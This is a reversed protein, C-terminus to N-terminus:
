DKLIKGDKIEIFPIDYDGYFGIADLPTLHITRIVNDQTNIKIYLKKRADEESEAFVVGRMENLPRIGGDVYHMEEEWEFKYLFM